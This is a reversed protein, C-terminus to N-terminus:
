VSNHFMNFTLKTDDGNEFGTVADGDVVGVGTVGSAGRAGARGLWRLLLNFFFRLFILLAAILAMSM